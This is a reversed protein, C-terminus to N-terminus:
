GEHTERDENWPKCRPHQQRRRTAPWRRRPRRECRIKRAIQLAFVRELAVAHHAMAHTPVALSLQCGHQRRSWSGKPFANEHEAGRRRALQRDLIIQPVRNARAQRAGRHAHAGLKRFVIHCIHDLRNNFQDLPLEFYDRCIMLECDTLDTKKVYYLNMKHEMQNHM